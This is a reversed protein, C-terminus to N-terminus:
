DPSQVVGDGCPHASILWGSVLPQLQHVRPIGGRASL